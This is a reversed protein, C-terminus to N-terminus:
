ALEGRMHRYLWAQAMALDRKVTAAITATAQDRARTLTDEREGARYQAFATWALWLALLACAIALLPWLPRLQEASLRPKRPETASTETM